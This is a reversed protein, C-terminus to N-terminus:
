RAVQHSTEEVEVEALPMIWDSHGFLRLPAAALDVQPDVLPQLPHPLLSARHSFYVEARRGYSLEWLTAVHAAYQHCFV